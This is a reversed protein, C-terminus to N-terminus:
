SLLSMISPPSLQIDFRPRHDHRWVIAHIGFFICKDRKEKYTPIYNPDDLKERMRNCEEHIEDLKKEVQKWIQHDDQLKALEGQWKNEQMALQHLQANLYEITGQDPQNQMMLNALNTRMAAQPERVKKLEDNIHKRQEATPDKSRLSNVMEDVEKPDRIIEIAKTWAATDVFHVSISCGKCRIPKENYQASCVYRVIEWKGSDKGHHVRMTNGCYGCRALGGRVLSQEPSHNNRASFQQNNKLKEQVEDFLDENIILPIAIKVREEAPRPERIPSKKGPVRTVRARFLELEGTYARNKAMRSVTTYRWIPTKPPLMGQEKATTSRRVSKPGPIGKANLTDTIRKLSKGEIISQFIFKVVKVETWETGDEDVKVVEFNLTYGDQKHKESYTWSYGYTARGHGVHKPPIGKEPNGEAKERKGNM